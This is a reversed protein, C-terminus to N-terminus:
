SLMRYSQWILLAGHMTMQETRKKNKLIRLASDINALVYATKIRYRKLPRDPPPPMLNRKIINEETDSVPTRDIYFTTM